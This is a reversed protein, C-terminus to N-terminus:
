NLFVVFFQGRHMCLIFANYNKKLYQSVDYFRVFM